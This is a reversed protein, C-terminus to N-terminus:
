ARLAILAVDDRPAGGSAEIVARELAEVVEAAPHGTHARLVDEMLRNGFLPEAPRVETVGDTYLLMLDGPGLRVDVESLEIEDLAGLLTGSAQAYALEGSARLILPPPHGAVCLTVLVGDEQPCLQAYVITAFRPGAADGGALLADNLARLNEAPREGRQAGARLTHRLMATVAAAETGKGAVDGLMAAWRRSGSPVVDYFDGGVLNQEGNPRYRAALEVGPVDPLRDPLLSRQLTEAIHSRERFLRINEIALSIRAALTECLAADEASFGRGSGAMGLALTGLSGRPSRLAVNIAHASQTAGEGAAALTREQGGAERVAIRAWDALSPVLLELIEQMTARADRMELMRDGAQALLALRLAAREAERQAAASREQAAEALARSTLADHLLRDREAETAHRDSIDRLFGAFMPPQQDGLRSVTLEVAFRTGDAHLAELELRRDLIHVVGREVHETLAREHADRFEPPIITEALRRGVVDERRFGFTREAAPNFDVVLGTHDMTIICDLAARVITASREETVRLREDVSVRDLYAALQRAAAALEDLHDDTAIAGSAALVEVVGIVAGRTVLPAAVVARLGAALAADRRPFDVAVAVDALAEPEASASVRGLLGVEPAFTLRRCVDRFADVQEGAPARWDDSWHLHGDDDSLWLVGLVAGLQEVIERLAHQTAEGPSGPASLARLLRRSLAQTGIHERPVAM